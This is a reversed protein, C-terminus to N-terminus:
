AKVNITYHVKAQRKAPTQVPGVHGTNLKAPPGKPTTAAPGGSYGSGPTRMRHDVAAAGHAAGAM